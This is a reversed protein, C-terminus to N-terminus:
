TNLSQESDYCIYIYWRGRRKTVYSCNEIKRIEDSKINDKLRIM